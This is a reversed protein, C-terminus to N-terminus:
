YVWHSVEYHHFQPHLRAFVAVFLASLFYYYYYVSKYLAMCSGFSFIHLSVRVFM